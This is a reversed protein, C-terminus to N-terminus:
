KEYDAQEMGELACEDSCKNSDSCISDCPDYNAINHKWRWNMDSVLSTNITTCQNQATCESIQMPPLFNPKVTGPQQALAAGAIVSAVGLKTFSFM